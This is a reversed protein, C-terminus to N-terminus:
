GLDQPKEYFFPAAEPLCDALESGAIVHCRWCNWGSCALPQGRQNTNILAACLGAKFLGLWACIFDPRNEM